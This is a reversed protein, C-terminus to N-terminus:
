KLRPLPAFEYHLGGRGLSPFPLPSISTDTFSLLLSAGGESFPFHLYFCPRYSPTLIGLLKQLSPVNISKWTNEPLKWITKKSKKQVIQFHRRYSEPVQFADSIDHFIMFNKGLSYNKLMFIGSFVQFFFELIQLTQLNMRIWKTEPIKLYRFFFNLASSPNSFVNNIKEHKKMYRFICHVWFM